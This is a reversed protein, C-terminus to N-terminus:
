NGEFPNLPAKMDKPTVLWFFRMEALFNDLIKKARPSQTRFYYSKLISRLYQRAEEGEDTDIRDLKVLEMNVKDFFNLHEDYVFAAGGTMGAGFNIGTEGLVVVTGGTMYECPHDGTGEVVALAGSNRVAFREGVKGAVFLKGGTAGYLCTNGAISKLKNINEPVIVIRGGKMGKGVYDNANGTLHIFMGHSIFAGLSQGANGTLNIKIIDKQPLGNDGFKEAIMGSIYAGFARNTNNIRHQVSVPESPNEIVQKVEEYVEKEFVNKDWPDNRKQKTNIGDVNSLVFSLDFKKAKENEIVRILTTNGIVEELSRYGLKSLIERVEQAVNQMYSVVADVSGQYHTRLKEDQTAIGVSCKNLHCVRLIKCGITNLLVTGFGYSEAGLIAAKVVDMGTKLGGDTQLEVYERLKNAKLANHAEVLGLEWPNGAYKISSLQAAGTGGDYGSITIKDAYAKAVGVAITGVGATSVLKVSVKASPNVQKLDYILQALDEISYIDHHPPPSILAIGPITHRLTAILPSVKSGPLQGGEGPKAGQALKIQLEDANRLYAPTVGFRGSAIQKIRSNRQTSFRAADEGGEGCNSMGGIQNMAEAIAQHAEPSISGLSMAASNFRPTIKELPEVENIPVPERDPSLQLFDRVMYLGRNNIRDSVTGYDDATRTKAFKRIGLSVDPSYDHYEGKASYKYFSGVELAYQRQYQRRAFVKQHVNLIREEIDRYNLGPVMAYAATFCESTIEKNLGIVDFMCSHQYSDMACIGMKSMIKLLGANLAKNINKLALKKRKNASGNLQGVKREVMQLATAYLLYPYVATAGFAIMVACSHADHVEGTVAIISAKSRINKKLLFSNLFGTVMPMPIVAEDQSLNRDDLIVLRVGDNVIADAISYGLKRLSQRLDKKFTTPFIRHIYNPDFRENDRKGFSLIVDLKEKSLIPSNLKIGSANEPIEKLVNGRAGIMVSTSM